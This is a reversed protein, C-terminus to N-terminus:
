GGGDGVVGQAGIEEGVCDRAGFEAGAGGGWIDVEEEDGADRVVEARAGGVIPRRPELDLARVRRHPDQLLMQETFGLLSLDPNRHRTM